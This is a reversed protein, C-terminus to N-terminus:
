RQPRANLIFHVAVTPALDVMASFPGVGLGFPRRDFEIRGEARASTETVSLTVPTELMQSRGRITVEGTARYGLGGLPELGTLRYVVEPHNRSDFGEASTAFANVVASGFDASASDITVTLTAAEPHEPDFSGGGHFRRFVGQGPKGDMTFDFEVTSSDPEILWRLPTAALASHPSLAVLLAALVIGRFLGLVLARAVADAPGAVPAPRGARRATRDGAKRGTARAGM